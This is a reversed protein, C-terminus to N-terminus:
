VAPESPMCVVGIHSRSLQQQATDTHTIYINIFPFASLSIPLQFIFITFPHILYIPVFPGLQSLALDNQNIKTMRGKGHRTRKSPLDCFFAYYFFQHTKPKSPSIARPTQGPDRGSQHTNGERGAIEKRILNAVGIVVM